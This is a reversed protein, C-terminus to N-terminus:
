GKYGEKPLNGNKALEFMASKVDEHSSYLLERAKDITKDKKIKNVDGYSQVAYHIISYAMMLSNFWGEKTAYKKGDELFSDLKSNIDAGTASGNSENMM